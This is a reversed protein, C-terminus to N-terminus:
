AKGAAKRAERQGAGAEGRRAAAARAAVGGAPKGPGARM